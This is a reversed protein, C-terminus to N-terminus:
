GGGGRIAHLIHMYEGADAIVADVLAPGDGTISERIAADLDAENRVRSATVGTAEAIAAFDTPFYSVAAAGGHGTARQKLKILSLTSDNFVVVTIPLDLRALTELEAVVMGLGGDGIFCFTRRNPVALAAAVAAPVSFGMTALGSSALFTAPEEADWFSTVPFMHAGSDVTALSGPPAAARVTRVVSTPTLGKSGPASLLAARGIERAGAAFARDWGDPIPAIDALLEDLPGVLEVAPRFYTNDTPWPSLSIVPAAYSWPGPILEVPDLGLAVVLDAAEIVPAEISAGTLVGVCNPWSEPVTGKGKYTQLVPIGTGRVAARVSASASRAAMGVLVVPRRSKAIHRRAESVTGKCFPSPAPPSFRSRSTPDFDIHVPGPTPAAAIRFAQRMTSSPDRVGLTASWKTVPTFMSRQDLRQHPVRALESEPVTDTIVLLPQRDLWAQATGNIASAAGPGRTVVCVAPTGTLEAFAGAMCAAATETHALVFRGGVGEVAAILDLNNGGGPLGFVVEAGGEAAFVDAAAAALEAADM